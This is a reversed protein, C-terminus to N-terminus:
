QAGPGVPAFPLQVGGSPGFSGLSPRIGEIDGVSPLLFQQPPFETPAPTPASAHSTIDVGNVGKAVALDCWSIAVHVSSLIHVRQVAENKRKPM